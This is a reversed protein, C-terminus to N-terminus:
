SSPAYLFSFVFGVALASVFGAIILMIFVALTQGAPMGLGRRLVGWILAVVLITSPILLLDGAIAGGAFGRPAVALAFAANVIPQIWNYGAILAAVNASAGIGRVIALLLFLCLAWDLLLILIDATIALAFPGSVEIMSSIEPDAAAARRASVFALATFPLTYVVAWFSRFVGDVSQDLRTRWETQDFAMRWAAGMQAAAQDFGIM